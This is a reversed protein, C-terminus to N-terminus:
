SPFHERVRFKVDCVITLFLERPGTQGPQHSNASKNRHLVTAKTPPIGETSRGKQTFLQKM